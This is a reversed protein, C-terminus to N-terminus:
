FVTINTSILFLLVINIIIVPCLIQKRIPWLKPKFFIYKKSYELEKRNKEKEREM